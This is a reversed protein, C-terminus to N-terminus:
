VDGAVTFSITNAVGVTVALRGNPPIVAGALAAPTVSKYRNLVTVPQISDPTGTAGYIRVTYTSATDTANHAVFKTIPVASGSGATYLTVEATSSPKVANCLSVIAM